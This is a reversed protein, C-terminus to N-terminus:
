VIGRIKKVIDTTALGPRRQVVYGQVGLNQMTAWEIWQKPNDGYESGNVHVDPKVIEIFGQAMANYPKDVIVVYDVCSLAALLAAREDQPIFPRGEGKGDLVSKDSNIGVFLVDGRQKAEELLVLHGAHLIDFSGNTTVIKHGEKKLTEARQKAQELSLIKNNRWHDGM